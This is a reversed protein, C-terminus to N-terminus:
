TSTRSTIGPVDAQSHGQESDPQEPCPPVRTAEAFFRRCYATRGIWMGGNFYRFRNGQAPPLSSEFADFRALTPWNVLDAAFLLRCDYEDVFRAVLEAPDGLLLADRSDIGLVFETTIRPKACRGHGPAQPRRQELGSRGAGAGDGARGPAHSKAGPHGHGRRRQEVHHRDPGAHLGSRDPRRPSSPRRSIPEMKLPKFTHYGHAHVVLPTTDFLTNRILPASM